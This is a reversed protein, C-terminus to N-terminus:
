AAAAPTQPAAACPAAPPGSAHILRGNIPAARGNVPIHALTCAAHLGPHNHGPPRAGAAPIGTPAHAQVSSAPRSRWLTCHPRSPAPAGIPLWFRVQIASSWRGRVSGRRWARGGVVPAAARPSRTRAGGGPATPAAACPRAAAPARRAPTQAATLTCATGPVTQPRRTAPSARILKNPAGARGQSGILTQRFGAAVRPLLLLAAHVYQTAPQSRLWRAGLRGGRFRRAGGGKCQSWHTHQSIVGGAGGARWRRTSSNWRSSYRRADSGGSDSSVTCMCTRAHCTEPCLVRRWPMRNHRTAARAGLQKTADMAQPWPEHESESTLRERERAGLRAQGRQVVRRRVALAAALLVGQM